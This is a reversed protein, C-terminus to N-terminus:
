RGSRWIHRTTSRKKVTSKFNSLEFGHGSRVATAVAQRPVKARYKYDTGKNVEVKAGPFVAEIDSKIRARVTLLDTDGPKQVISIFSKSTFIWM